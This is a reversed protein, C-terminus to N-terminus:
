DICKANKTSKFCCVKDNNRSSLSVKQSVWISNIKEFGAKLDKLRSDIEMSTLLGDQILLKGLEQVSNLKVVKDDLSIKTEALQQLIM